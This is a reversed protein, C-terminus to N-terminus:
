VSSWCWEQSSSIHEKPKKQESFNQKIILNESIAMERWMTPNKLKAETNKKMLTKGEM